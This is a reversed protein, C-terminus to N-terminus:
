YIKMSSNVQIEGHFKVDLLLKQLILDFQTTSLGGSFTEVNKLLMEVKLCGSCIIVSEQLVANLSHQFVLRSFM